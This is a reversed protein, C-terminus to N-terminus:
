EERTIREFRTLVEVEETDSLVERAEQIISPHLQSTRFEEQDEQDEQNWLGVYNEAFSTVDSVWGLTIKQEFNPGFELFISAVAWSGKEQKIIIRANAQVIKIKPERPPV